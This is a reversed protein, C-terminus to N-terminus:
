RAKNGTESVVGINRSLYKGFEADRQLIHETIWMELFQLMELSIYESKSYFDKQLKSVKELFFTHEKKHEMIGPYRDDLM